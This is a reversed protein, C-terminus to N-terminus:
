QLYGLQRLSELSKEDIGAGAQEQVRAFKLPNFWIVVEMDGLVAYRAPFDNPRFTVTAEATEAITVPANARRNSSFGINVPVLDTTAVGDAGMRQITFTLPMDFENGLMLLYGGGRTLASPRDFVYGLSPTDFQLRGSRNAPMPLDGEPGSVRIRFIRGEEAPLVLVNWGPNNTGLYALISGIMYRRENWSPLVGHSILNRQESPDAVIDFLQVDKQANRVHIKYRDSMASMWHRRSAFWLPPDESTEGEMLPLLSRGHLMEPAPLDALALITPVLDVSQVAQEVVAGRPLKAPYHIVLPVSLLENYGTEHLFQRHELFEEGHDSTLVIITNRDLKLARLKERLAGIAQDTWLIGRDYSARVHDLDAADFTAEPDAQLRANTDALFRTSTFPPLSSHTEVAFQDDYEPPAAYPSHPAYTHLFLFFSGSHGNRDLWDFARDFGINKRDRIGIMDAVSWFMSGQESFEDFDKNMGMRATVYGGGTFAATRYGSVRAYSALTPMSPSLRYLAVNTGALIRDHLAPFFGSLMALHSPATNPAASWVRAFRISESALADINPTTRNKHGYSSVHDARLTDLSILIINPRGQTSGAGAIVPEGIYCPLEIDDTGRISFNLRVPRTGLASLDARCPIWKAEPKGYTDWNWEGLSANSHPEFAVLRVTIPLESLFNELFALHFELHARAPLTVTASVEAPAVLTVARLTTFTNPMDRHLFSLSRLPEKWLEAIQGFQVEPTWGARRNLLNTLAQNNARYQLRIPPKGDTPVTKLYVSPRGAGLRLSRIAIFNTLGRGTVSFNAHEFEIQNTGAKARIELDAFWPESGNEFPISLRTLEAGNLRVILEGPPPQKEMNGPNDLAALSAAQIRLTTSAMASEFQVSHRSSKGLEVMAPLEQMDTFCWAPAPAGLLTQVDKVRMIEAGAITLHAPAEPEPGMNVAPWGDPLPFSWYRAAADAQVPDLLAVQEAPPIYGDIERVPFMSVRCAQIFEQQDFLRLPAGQTEAVKPRTLEIFVVVSGLVLLTLIMMLMWHKRVFDTM